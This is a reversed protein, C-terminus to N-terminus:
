KIDYSWTTDFLVKYGNKLKPLQVLSFYGIGIEELGTQTIHVLHLYTKSRDNIYINRVTEAIGTMTSYGLISYSDFDFDLPSYINCDRYIYNPDPKNKFWQIKEYSRNWLDKYDTESKIVFGNEALMFDICKLRLNNTDTVEVWFKDDAISYKDYTTSQTAQEPDCSVFLVALMVVCFIISKNM